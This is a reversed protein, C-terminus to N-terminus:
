EIERGKGRLERLVVHALAQELCPPSRRDAARQPELGAAPRDHLRVGALVVSARHDALTADIMISRRRKSPHVRPAPAVRARPGRRAPAAAWAPRCYRAIGELRSSIGTM